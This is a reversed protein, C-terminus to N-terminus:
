KMLGVRAGPREEFALKRGTVECKWISDVCKFISLDGGDPNLADAVIALRYTDASKADNIAECFARYENPTLEADFIHSLRGKVEIRLGSESELDWGVKDAERSRTPDDIENYFARVREVAAKEVKSKLLPDSQYLRTKLQSDPRTVAVPELGARKMEHIYAVIKKEFKPNLKSLYTLPSMGPYGEKMRPVHFTRDKEEILYANTSKTTAKAPSRTGIPRPVKDRYLTAGEYFGVIKAGEGRLPSTATFIVLVNDLTDAMQEAGLNKLNTPAHFPCYGYCLGGLDHFNETEGGQESNDALWRFYTTPLGDEDGAYFEM